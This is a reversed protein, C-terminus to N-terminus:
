RPIMRGNIVQGRRPVLICEKASVHFFVRAAIIHRAQRIPPALECGNHACDVVNSLTAMSLVAAGTRPVITRPLLVLLNLTAAFLPAIDRSDPLAWLNVEPVVTLTGVTVM